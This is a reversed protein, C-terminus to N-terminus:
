VVVVVAISQDTDGDGAVDDGDDDITSPTGTMSLVAPALEEENRGLM